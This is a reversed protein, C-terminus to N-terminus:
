AALLRQLVADGAGASGSPARGDWTWAPVARVLGDAGRELVDVEAVRRHGGTRDRALHVVVRLGSALQSHLAARDLGAVAALAELRAPM